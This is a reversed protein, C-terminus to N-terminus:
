FYKGSCYISVLIILSSMNRSCWTLTMVNECNEPQQGFESLTEYLRLEM